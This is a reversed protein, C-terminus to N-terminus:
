LYAMGEANLLDEWITIRIGFPHFIELYLVLSIFKLGSPTAFVLNDHRLMSVQSIELM